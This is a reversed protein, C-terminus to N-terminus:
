LIRTQTSSFVTAAALQPCASRCPIYRFWFNLEKSSLRLQRMAFIRVAEGSSPAPHADRREKRISSLHSHSSCVRLRCFPYRRVSALTHSGPRGLFMGHCPSVAFPPRIPSEPLFTFVPSVFRESKWGHDAPLAMTTEVLFLPFSIIGSLERAYFTL